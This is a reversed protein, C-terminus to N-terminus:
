ETVMGDVYRLGPRTMPNGVGGPGTLTLLRVEERGLLTRVEEVEQQRGIFPTPQLPFFISDGVVEASEGLTAAVEGMGRSGRQFSAAQEADPDLAQFLRRVSFAPITTM